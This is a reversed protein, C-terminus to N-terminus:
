RSACEGALRKEARREKKAENKATKKETKQLGAAFPRGRFTRCLLLSMFM